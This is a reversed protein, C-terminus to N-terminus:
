KNGTNNQWKLIHLNVYIKNVPELALQKRLMQYELEQIPWLLNTTPILNPEEMHGSM